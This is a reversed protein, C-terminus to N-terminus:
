SASLWVEQVCAGPDVDVTWAEAFARVEWLSENPHSTTNLFRQPDTGDRVVLEDIVDEVRECDDGIVCVLVVKDRVCAEVFEELAASDWSPAHLILKQAYGM